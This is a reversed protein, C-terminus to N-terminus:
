SACVGITDSGLGGVCTAGDIGSDACGPDGDTLDCYKFCLYTAGGGISYCGSGLMCRGEPLCNGGWATTGAVDCYLVGSWVVCARDPGTCGTVPDTTDFPDCSAPPPGCLRIGTGDPNTIDPVEFLCLRGGPCDADAYCFKACRFSEPFEPNGCCQLGAACSDAGTTCPADIGDFSAAECGEIFPAGTGTIICRQGAGCGCQTVVNCPGGLDGTCTSSDDRVEATVEPSADHADADGDADGDAADPYCGCNCVGRACSGYCVGRAECERACTDYSCADAPGTDADRSAPEPFDAIATCSTTAAALLAVVPVVLSGRLQMNLDHRGPAASPM